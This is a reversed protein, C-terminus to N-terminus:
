QWSETMEPVAWFASGPKYRGGRVIKFFGEDGWYRGGLIAALGTTREMRLAGATSSFPMTQLAYARTTCLSVLAM